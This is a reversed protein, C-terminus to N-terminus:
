RSENQNAKLLVPVEKFRYIRTKIPPQSKTKQRLLAETRSKLWSM